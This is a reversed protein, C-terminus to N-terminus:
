DILDIVQSKQKAKVVMQEYIHLYRDFSDSKHGLIIRSLIPSKTKGTFLTCFSHRMDHPTKYPKFSTGEYARDFQNSVTAYAVDAFLLYNIPDDGFRKAKFDKQCEKYRKALINWTEKEMIPIVRSNKSSITKRGKLAKRPIRHTKEDRTRTRDECQSELVIYGYYEIKKETLEEHLVGSTHGAYIFSMPLSLGENLRVGTRYLVLIFDAAPESIEKLRGHIFQFEHEEAVNEWGKHGILNKDFSRCKKAKDPDMLNKEALFRLFNNVSLIVHNASGAALPKGQLTKAEDRLWDRFDSFYMSWNGPNDVKKINLFYEIGYGEFYSFFNEWSNPQKTKLHTKYKEALDAFDYYKTKYSDKRAILDLRAKRQADQSDAWAKAEKYDTYHPHDEKKLRIRKGTAPDDYSFSYYHSGDKLVRKSVYM